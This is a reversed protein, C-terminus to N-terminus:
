DCVFIKCLHIFSDNNIELGTLIQELIYLENGLIVQTGGFTLADTDETLIYDVLGRKQLVACTEESESIAKLFPIGLCNLFEMVEDSHVKKVILINKSINTITKNIKKIEKIFVNEQENNEDDSDIFEEADISNAQGIKNRLCNLEKIREQMKTRTEVRKDLTNKKAPPPLGDFVFVPIVGKELFEIVKYLFGQIHFNEQTYTYRFKYLLISSDIAIKKNYLSYDFSIADPAHRKIIKKLGKIGM